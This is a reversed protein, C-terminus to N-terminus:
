HQQVLATLESKGVGSAGAVHLGFDVRGLPARWVALWLPITVTRPAVEILRLSAHVAAALADGRPLAPLCMPRLSGSLAVEMQPLHGQPGLIGGGHFYAWDGDQNQHWGTHTFVRREVIHASTEQIAVPVHDKVAPGPRVIAKAGLHEAVWALTPFEKALIRFRRDTGGVTAFLEYQRRAEVGDHEVIDAVIEATFNTLAIPEEGERTPKMWVM